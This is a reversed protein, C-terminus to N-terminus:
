IKYLNKVISVLINKNQLLQNKFLSANESIIKVKFEIIIMMYTTFKIIFSHYNFLSMITCDHLFTRVNLLIKKNFFTLKVLNLLIFQM